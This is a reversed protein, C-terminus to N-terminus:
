RSVYPNRNGQIAYIRDDRLREWDSVPDAANWREFMSREDDSIVVGHKDAMYLWVRAVDGRTEDAPEFMGKVDEIACAGFGRSEGPIEGYRDNSRLANVQGISPALNHLDFIMAQAAPDEKECHDRGGESWCPFSAAPMLSAPVIHEWEIRKSRHQYTSPATYACNAGDIDGSGDSDGHSVYGCGCYLTVRHDFYVQDDAANKAASWSTATEASATGALVILFLTTAFRKLM